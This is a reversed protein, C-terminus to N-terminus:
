EEPDAPLLDRLADVWPQGPRRHREVLAAIDDPIPVMMPVTDPTTGAAAYVTAADVALAAAIRDIEDPQLTRRGTEVSSWWERSMGLRDALDAQSLGTRIRLIELTLPTGPELLAVPDVQLQTAIRALTHVDPHRAGREYASIPGKGQWGLAQALAAQTPYGADLRAQRLRAGDVRVVGTRGAMDIVTGPPVGWGQDV